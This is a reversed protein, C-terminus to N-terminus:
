VVTQQMSVKWTIQLTDGSVVNVAAFTQRCLIVGTATHNFVGSETIAFTNTFTYTVVLQATDNVLAITSTVNSLSATSRQGGDAVIEGGLASDTSKAATASTGIAIQSFATGGAGLLSLKSLEAKGVNTIVNKVERHDIVEGDRIHDISFRGYVSVDEVESKGVGKSIQDKFSTSEKGM